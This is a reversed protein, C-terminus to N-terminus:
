ASSPMRSGRQDRPSPSTYLLCTREKGNQDKVLKENTADKLLLDSLDCGELKKGAPTKTGTLALITPYFDLGNVMVDSQVGAEIGPGTVIFPVRTGGEMASIKGQDLPYNDTTTQGHGKEM